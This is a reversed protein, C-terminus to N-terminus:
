AKAASTVTPWAKSATRSTRKSCTARCCRTTCTVVSPSEPTRSCMATTSSTRASRRPPRNELWPRLRELVRDIPLQDPAGAYNHRLPIYAAEGPAVALSIGVIQARLGDLSDTETDIATLPAAEIKAIWASLAEDSFITEYHTEISEASVHPPEPPFLDANNSSKARSSASSGGSMSQELERKLSKFGYREYFAILGERDIGGLQLSDFEPWGLVHGSLDFDRVVTVLKRGHPLWDLAKRLNEGAAGKMAAAALMVGDLSGHEAIWKAATKPGVKDVGPVNDVSDGVLTLYDIIREPPVGFKAAVGAVDLRENSMTNILTVREDVLQALDKDGTSIIVDFGGKAAMSSITGIADDAEIGPVSLVPWGLLKVGETIPDIQLALDPPMASRNAKYDPYLEDRFTGGAADFVCAGHLAPYQDRMRKMMSLVGHIAGTPVGGPGRLDPLAHYARYLYSSGDVLLLTKDTM